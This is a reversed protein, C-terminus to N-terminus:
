EEPSQPVGTTTVATIGTGAAAAILAGATNRFLGALTM